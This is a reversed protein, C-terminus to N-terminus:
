LRERVPRPDGRTQEPRCPRDLFRREPPRRQVRVSRAAGEGLDRRASLCRASRNPRPLRAARAARCPGACCGQSSGATARGSTAETVRAAEQATASASTSSFQRVQVRHDSRQDRAQQVHLGLAPKAALASDRALETPSTQIPASASAPECSGEAGCRARGTGRRTTSTSSGAPPSTRRSRGPCPGKSATGRSRARSSSDPRCSRSVASSSSASGASALSSSPADRAPRRGAPLDDFGGDPDAKKRTRSPPGPVSDLGFAYARRLEPRRGDRPRAPLESRGAARGCPCGRGPRCSGSRLSAWPSEEERCGKCSAEPILGYPPM